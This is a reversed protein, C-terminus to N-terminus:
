AGQRRPESPERVLRGAEVHVVHDALREAEGRDHTVQVITTGRERRRRALADGVVRRTAGDLASTCEDLLLLDAGSLLARALAVRQAEGGSLGRVGRELLPAIGLDDAVCQLEGELAAPPRGDRRAGFLLNRRVDLHPFLLDDQPAYGVRRAEPPAQTVDAGDRRITGSTAAVFGAATELLLTKGAGTPGVIAVWASREVRLSVDVLAFAGLRLSVGAWELAPPPASDSGDRGGAPFSARLPAATM